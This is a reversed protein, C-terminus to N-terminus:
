TRRRPPRGPQTLPCPLKALVLFTLTYVLQSGSLCHWRGLALSSHSLPCRCRRRRCRVDSSPVKILYQTALSPYRQYRAMQSPVPLGVMSTTCLVVKPPPDPPPPVTTVTPPPHPFQRLTLQPPPPFNYSIGQGLPMCNFLWYVSIQEYHSSQVQFTLPREPIRLDINIAYIVAEDSIAEEDDVDGTSRWWDNVKMAAGVVPVAPSANAAKTAAGKVPEAASAKVIKMAMGEVSSAAPTQVARMAMGEIPCVASAKVVKMATGKFPDAALGKVANIAAGDIRGAASAKVVMMATGEVPAAASAKVDKKAAVEMPAVASAKVVKMAAGKVPAAAKAGSAAVVAGNVSAAANIKTMKMAADGTTTAAARSKKSAAQRTFLDCNAGFLGNRGACACHDYGGDVAATPGLSCQSGSMAGAAIRLQGGSPRLVDWSQRCTPRPHEASPESALQGEASPSQLLSKQQCRALTAACLCFWSSVLRRMM